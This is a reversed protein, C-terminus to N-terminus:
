LLILYIKIRYDRQFSNQSVDLFIKIYFIEIKFNLSEDLRRTEIETKRTLKSM